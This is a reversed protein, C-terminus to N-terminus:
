DSFSDKKSKGKKKVSLEVNSDLKTVLPKTALPKPIPPRIGYLKDKGLDTIELYPFDDEFLAKCTEVSVKDSSFDITGFKATVVKGPVIRVVRFYKKWM